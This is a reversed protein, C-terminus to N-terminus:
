ISANIEEIRQNIETVTLNSVDKFGNEWVVTNGIYYQPMPHYKLPRNVSELFTVLAPDADINVENFSIGYDRLQKRAVSSRVGQDVYLTLQAM